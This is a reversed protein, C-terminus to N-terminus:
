RGEGRLREAVARALNRSNGSGRRAWGRREEEIVEALKAEDVEVPAALADLAREIVDGVYDQGTSFMVRKYHHLDDILKERDGTVTAAHDEAEGFESVPIQQGTAFQVYDEADHREDAPHASASASLITEIAHRAFARESAFHEDCVCYGSAVNWRHLLVAEIQEETAGGQVPTKQCASIAARALNEYEYVDHDLYLPGSDKREPRMEARIAQGVAEIQEETIM